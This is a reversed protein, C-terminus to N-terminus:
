EPLKHRLVGEEVEWRRSALGQDILEVVPGIPSDGLVVFAFLRSIHSGESECGLDRFEKRASERDQEDAVSVRFVSNPSPTVVRDFVLEGDTGIETEVIDGLSIGKAFIPINDITYLDGTKFAWLTEITYPPYGDEDRQMPVFIREYNPDDETKAGPIEPDV